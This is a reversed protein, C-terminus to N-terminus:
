IRVTVVDGDRVEYDRGEVRVWGKARAEKYSGASELQAFPVVEARIFKAKFDSHIKAVADELATGRKVPWSQVIGRRGAITFMTLLDLLKYCEKIIQDLNHENPPERNFYVFTPKQIGAQRLEENIIKIDRQPNLSGLPHAVEPNEFARVVHLIADVERIKALFQSGLGAGEHADKVLGAIDIFKITAPIVKKSAVLRALVSLRRDPVTVVGVNPEITTFPYSAVQALQRGLLANFLTSKGANPLGVIGVSLSM